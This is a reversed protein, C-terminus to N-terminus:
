ENKPNAEEADGSTNTKNQKKLQWIIRAGVFSIAIIAGADPWNFIPELIFASLIGIILSIIFTQIDM